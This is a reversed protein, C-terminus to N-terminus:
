RSQPALKTYYFIYGISSIYQEEAETDNFISAIDGGDIPSLRGVAVQINRSVM